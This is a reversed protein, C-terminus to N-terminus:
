GHRVWKQDLHLAHTADCSAWHRLEWLRSACSRLAQNNAHGFPPILLNLCIHWIHAMRLSFSPSLMLKPYNPHARNESGPSVASVWGTLLGRWGRAARRLHRHHWQGAAEQGLNLAHSPIVTEPRDPNPFTWKCIGFLNRSHSCQLMM